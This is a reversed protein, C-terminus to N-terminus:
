RVLKRRGCRRRKEKRSNKKNENKDQQVARVCFHIKVLSWMHFKILLSVDCSGSKTVLRKRMVCSFYKDKDLFRDIELPM